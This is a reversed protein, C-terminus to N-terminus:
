HFCVKNAMIWWPPQDGPAAVEVDVVRCSTGRRSLEEAARPLATARKDEMGLLHIDALTLSHDIIFSDSTPAVKTPEWGLATTTAAVSPAAARIARFAQIAFTLLLRSAERTATERQGHNAGADDGFQFDWGDILALKVRDLAAALTADRPILIDLDRSIADILNNGLDPKISWRIPISLQEAARVQGVTVPTFAGRPSSISTRIRPPPIRFRLAESPVQTAM